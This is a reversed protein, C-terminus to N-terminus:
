KTAVLFRGMQVRGPYKEDIWAALRPVRVRYPIGDPADLGKLGTLIVCAPPNKELQAMAEELLPPYSLLIMDPCRIPPRRELLFHLAREGSFDLIPAGPPFSAHIFGNLAALDRVNEEYTYIGKGTAFPYPVMGAHSQRSKWGRLMKAAQMFNADIELLFSLPVALLVAPVRRGKMVLPEFVFGVLAMGFLPMAFRTHSWGVRGAASRFLLGSFVAVVLTRAALQRNGTRWAHLFTAFLYGYFVLPVFYRAPESDIWKWINQDLAPGAPAPLSWVVTAARPILVFSDIFFQRIGARTMLLVMFPLALAIGSLMLLRRTAIPKGDLRAIRIILISVATGILAYIGADLAWLVGLASSAFALFLARPSGTRLYRLLGLVALVVPGLRFWPYVMLQGAAVACLSLAAGAMAGATTACIEAALPVLLALTAANLITDLRRTRRPSPPDGLVLAALGGDVAFGHLIFVESYPRAGERLLFAPTLHEGEHFPDMHLYPHDHIFLMVIFVFLSAVVINRRSVRREVMEPWSAGTRIMGALLGGVMAGGILLIVVAFDWSKPYQNLTVFGVGETPPSFFQRTTPAILAAIAAGIMSGLAIRGGGAM